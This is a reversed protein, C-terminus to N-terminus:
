LNQRPRRTSHMGLAGRLGYDVLDLHTKSALSQPERSRFPSYSLMWRSLMVAFILFSDFSPKGSRLPYFIRFFLSQILFVPLLNGLYCTRYLFSNTEDIFDNNALDSEGKRRRITM